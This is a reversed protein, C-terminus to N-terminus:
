SIGTVYGAADDGLVAVAARRRRQEVDRVHALQAQDAGVRRAASSVSTGISM